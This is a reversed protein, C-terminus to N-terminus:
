IAATPAAQWSSLLHPRGVAGDGLFVLAPVGVRRRVWLSSENAAGGDERKRKEGGQLAALDRNFARRASVDRGSAHESAVIDAKRRHM